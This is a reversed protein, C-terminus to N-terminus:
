AANARTGTARYLTWWYRPSSGMGAAVAVYPLRQGEDCWRVCGMPEYRHDILTYTGAEPAPEGPQHRKAPM